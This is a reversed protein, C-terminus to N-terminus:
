ASAGLTARAPIAGCERREKLDWVRLPARAEPPDSELVHLWRDADEVAPFSRLDEVRHPPEFALNENPFFIKLTQGADSNVSVFRGTPSFRVDGISDLPQLFERWLTGNHSNWFRLPGGGLRRVEELGTTVLVSSNPLCGVIQSPGPMLWAARPRVPLVWWVASCGALWTVAAMLWTGRSTRPLLRM